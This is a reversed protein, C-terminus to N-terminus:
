QLSAPTRFPGHDRGGEDVVYGIWSVLVTSEEGSLLTLDVEGRKLRTANLRGTWVDIRGFRDPYSRLQV